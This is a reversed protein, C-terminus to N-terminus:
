FAKYGVNELYIHNFVVRRRNTTIPLGPDGSRREVGRRGRARSSRPPEGATRSVPLGEGTITKQDIRWQNRSALLNFGDAGTSVHWRHRIRSIARNPFSGWLSKDRPPVPPDSLEQRGLRSDQLTAPSDDYRLGGGLFRQPPPWNVAVLEGRPAGIADVLRQSETTTM